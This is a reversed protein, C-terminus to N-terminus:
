EWLPEPIYNLIQENPPSEEEDIEVEQLIIEEEDNLSCVIHNRIEFHNGAANRLTEEWLEHARDCKIKYKNCYSQRQEVEVLKLLAQATTENTLHNHGLDEIYDNYRNLFHYMKCEKSKLREHEDCYLRSHTLNQCRVYGTITVQCVNIKKTKRSELFDNWNKKIQLWKQSM